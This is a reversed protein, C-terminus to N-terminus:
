IRHVVPNLSPKKRKFFREALFISTGSSIGMTRRPHRSAWPAMPPTTGLHTPRLEADGREKCPSHRPSCPMAHGFSAEGATGQAVRVWLM